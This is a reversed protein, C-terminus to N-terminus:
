IANITKTPNLIATFCSVPNICHKQYISMTTKTKNQNKILLRFLTKKMKPCGHSPYGPCKYPHRQLKKKQRVHLGFQLFYQPFVYFM